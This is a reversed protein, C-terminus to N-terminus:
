EVHRITAFDVEHISPTPDIRCAFLRVTSEGTCHQIPLPNAAVLIPPRCGVVHRKVDHGDLALGIDGLQRKEDSPRFLLCTM